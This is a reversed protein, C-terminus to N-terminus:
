AGLHYSHTVLLCGRGGLHGSGMESVSAQGVVSIGNKSCVLILSVAGWGGKTGSPHPFLTVSARGDAM